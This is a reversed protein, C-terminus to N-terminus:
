QKFSKNISFGCILKEEGSDILFTHTSFSEINGEQTPLNLSHEHMGEYLSLRDIEAISAATHADFFAAATKDKWTHFGIFKQYSQNMYLYHGKADKIFALAPLSEFFAHFRKQEQDSQMKKIKEDTIDRLTGVMRIAQNNKGRTVKGKVKVWQLPDSQRVRHEVIFFDTRGDLHAKLYENVLAMDKSHVLNLWSNLTSPTDTDSYGMISKWKPTYFVVDSKLDWDWIAENLSELALELREKQLLLTSKCNHLFHVDVILALFDNSSANIRLFPTIYVLTQKTIANDFTLEVAHEGSRPLSSITKICEKGFSGFAHEFAKNCVINEGHKYFLPLAIGQQLIAEELPHEPEKPHSTDLKQLRSYLATSIVLLFAIIAFLIIQSM